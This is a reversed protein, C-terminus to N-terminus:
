WQLRRTMRILINEMESSSDDLPLELSACKTLPDDMRYTGAIHEACYGINVCTVGRARETPQFTRSKITVTGAEGWTKLARAFPSNAGFQHEFRTKEVGDIEVPILGDLYTAAKVAEHMMTKRLADPVNGQQLMARARGVLTVFSVERQPSKNPHTELRGNWM